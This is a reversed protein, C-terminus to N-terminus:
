KLSIDRFNNTLETRHRAFVEGMLCDGQYQLNAAHRVVPTGGDGNARVAIPSITSTACRPGSGRRKGRPLSGPARLWCSGTDPEKRQAGARAQHANGLTVLGLRPGLAGSWIRRPTVSFPRNISRHWYQAERLRCSWPVRRRSLPPMEGSAAEKGQRSWPRATYQGVLSERPIRGRFEGGGTLFCV